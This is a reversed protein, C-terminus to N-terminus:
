GLGKRIELEQIRKALLELCGGLSNQSRLTRSAESRLHLLFNRKEYPIHGLYELRVDSGRSLASQIKKFIEVGECGETVANVILSLHRIGTRMRLTKIKVASVGPTDGMAHHVWLSPMSFGNLSPEPGEPEVAILRYGKRVDSGARQNLYEQLDALWPLMARGGRAYVRFPSELAGEVSERHASNMVRRLGEAQDM